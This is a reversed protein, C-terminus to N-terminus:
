RSVRTLMPGRWASWRAKREESQVSGMSRKQAWRRLSSLSM